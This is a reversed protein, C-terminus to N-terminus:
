FMRSQKIEGSIDGGYFDKPLECISRLFHEALWDLRQSLTMDLGSPSTSPVDCFDLKEHLLQMEDLAWLLENQLSLDNWELLHSHLRTELDRIDALTTM